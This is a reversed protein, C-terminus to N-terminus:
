RSRGWGGGGPTRLELVDGAAVQWSTAGGGSSRSGDRRRIWNAGCRGPQGGAVGYPAVKRHNALMTVEMAELFRISRVAGAGGRQKGAGGSGRRIGFQELVVPLRDEFIEPDTIHTNTMHTHIAPAGPQQPGAGAGGCVTEYYQHQKNGFTLNNMTGQSAAVVGLAGFLCDVVAQSVEVNGAAVAATPRPNLMSHRPVKLRLPRLMGANLPIDAALLCRLVYSVAARVVAPPANLNGNVQPSTGTFDVVCSRRDRALKLAVQVQSGNDLPYCFSGDRLQGLLERVALAANDQIHGMYALVVDAGHESCARRLEHEGKANAALQAHLDAINLDPNRAPQAGALLAARLEAHALKGGQLLQFNDFCVGEESLATSHAPMSGPTIGGVDAHHGRSCVFFAPTKGTLFVPSVVTLDPLHTGGAYPVNLLWADGRRIRGHNARLVHQVAIDMSGLHVPIHPANAVLKGRADFIACSFDLREKINVSTATNRLVHGMQEAAGTFVSHFVELRAPDVKTTRRKSAKRATRQRNLGLTGTAQLTATWGAPVYTTATNELVLVPGNLVNGARLAEREFVRAKHRKGDAFVETTFRPAPCRGRGTRFQDGLTGTADAAEAEVGAVIVERAPGSFGFTTQHTQALQKLMQALTGAPVALAAAAGAYRLLVRQEVAIRGAVKSRQVQKTAAAALQALTKKIVALNGALPVELSRQRVARVSALGIGAASLLGALPHILVTDMGLRAALQCAHQGGAGGFAVLAYGHELDHGRQVSITKVAKAMCAIAIDIFAAALEDDSGQYGLKRALARLRSRAPAIDLPADHNAGFAAPLAEPVLRGLLLNCDTVTLPGGRGYCAPGPEAGASQPGVHLRGMGSWCISGGGAAVTNVRLMPTRLSVGALETATTRELEGDWHAVDTSTGGMDFSVLRACGAQQAVAAAGIVGGAPGSLVADRGSFAAAAVLGGNSQMFQLRVKGLQKAVADVHERLLPSLYADAVATEGRAVAGIVPEVEASAFVWKFGLKRCLKAVAQEHARHRHSHLCVIAVTTIGQKLLQRLKPQLAKLDPTQEVTGDARVREAIEVVKAYLPPERRPFLDFLDPRAQSRIVLADAFGRTILLAVNAGKRELLANTAVTTGMRVEDIRSAPFKAGPALGLLQRIGAAAADASGSGSSLVKTVALGGQPDLGIVDTFTGGRDIWFRWSAALKQGSQHSRTTSM